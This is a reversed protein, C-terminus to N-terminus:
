YKRYPSVNINWLDRNFAFGPTDTYIHSLSGNLPGFTITGFKTRGLWGDGTPELSVGNNFMIKDTKIGKVNITDTEKITSFNIASPDFNERTVIQRFTLDYIIITAVIVFFLQVINLEVKM